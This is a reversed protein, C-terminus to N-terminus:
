RDLCIKLKSLSRRIRSKMTALPVGAQHALVNYTLGDLFAARLAQQQPAELQGLCAHLRGLSEAELLRDEAAVGTDALGFAAEIGVTAYAPRARLRDLCRNRAITALWTIPSGRSDDFVDAKRWVTTYVEQLVDEAEGQDHLIRLCVGFLKASTRDYVERLAAPDRQGVRRLALSLAERQSDM